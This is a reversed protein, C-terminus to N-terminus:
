ESLSLSDRFNIWLNLNKVAKGQWSNRYRCRFERYMYRNLYIHLFEQIQLFEQNQNREVGLQQFINKDKMKSSVMQMCSYNLKWGATNYVSWPPVTKPGPSLPQKEQFKSKWKKSLISSYSLPNWDPDLWDELIGDAPIQVKGGGEGVGALRSKDDAPQADGEDEEAEEEGEWTKGSFYIFSFMEDYKCRSTPNDIWILLMSMLGWYWTKVQLVKVESEKRSRCNTAHQKNRGKKRVQLIKLTM